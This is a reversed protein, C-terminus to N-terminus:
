IDLGLGRCSFSYNESNKSFETNKAFIWFFQFNAIQFIFKEDLFVDALILGLCM